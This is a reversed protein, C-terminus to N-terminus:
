TRVQQPERRSVQAPLGVIAGLEGAAWRRLPSDPMKALVDRVLAFADDRRLTRACELLDAILDFDEIAM